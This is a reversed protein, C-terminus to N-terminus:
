DTHLESQCGQYWYENPNKGDTNVALILFKKPLGIALISWIPFTISSSPRIAARKISGVAWVFLRCTINDTGGIASPVDLLTTWNVVVLVTM